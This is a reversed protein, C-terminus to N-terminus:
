DRRRLLRSGGGRFRNDSAPLKAMSSGLEEPEVYVWRLVMAPCRNGIRAGTDKVPEGGRHPSFGFGGGHSFAVTAAKRGWSERGQSLPFCCIFVLAALFFLIFGPCGGTPTRPRTRSLIRAVARFSRGAIQSSVFQSKM